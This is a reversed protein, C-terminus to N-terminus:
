WKLTVNQLPWLSAVLERELHGLQGRGDYVRFARERAGKKKEAVFEEELNVNFECEHYGKVVCRVHVEVKENVSLDQNPDRNTESM